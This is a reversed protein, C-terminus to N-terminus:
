ECHATHTRARMSGAIPKTSDVPLTRTSGAADVCKVSRQHRGGVDVIHRFVNRNGNERTRIASVQHGRHLQQLLYDLHLMAGKELVIAAEKACIGGLLGVSQAPRCLIPFPFSDNCQYLSSYFGSVVCIECHSCGIRNRLIANLIGTNELDVAHRSAM